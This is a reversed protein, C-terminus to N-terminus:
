KKLSGPRHFAAEPGKFGSVRVMADYDNQRAILKKEQRSRHQNFRVKSTDKHTNGYKHCAM